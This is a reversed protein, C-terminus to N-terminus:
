PCPYAAGLAEVVVTGGDRQVQEPHQRLHDLVGRIVDKMGVHEKLCFLPSRGSAVVASHTYEAGALFGQCFSSAQAADPPLTRGELRLTAAPCQEILTKGTIMEQEHVVLMM